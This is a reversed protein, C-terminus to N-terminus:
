KWYPNVNWYYDGDNNALQDYPWKEQAPVQRIWVYDDKGAYRRNKGEYEYLFELKSNEYSPNIDM